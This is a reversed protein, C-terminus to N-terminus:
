GLRNALFFRLMEKTANPGRADAYSGKASGGSWAHGAGQVTWHEALVRGDASYVSRTFSRGNDSGTTLIAAVSRASAHVVQEGNVPHVTSDKDGHFVITPVPKGDSKLTASAGSKMATFASNVDKAAGVALGSHVGVAAFIDPYAEGLIAAMAGGASLGAVYVSQRDIAYREIVSRTMDALLAPEGLDRQQHSRKFWNWCRSPNAQSNQAPYLVFFGEDSALAAENMGTGLAFDDPTQTCGHLMVVLPLTKGTGSELGHAQPPVFLKYECSDNAWTHRGDIFQGTRPADKQAPTSDPNPLDLGDVRRATGDIVDSDNANPSTSTARMSGRMAAQIAETAARLDGAQTLRTADAMLRDFTTNM